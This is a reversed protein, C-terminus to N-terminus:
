KEYIIAREQKSSLAISGGKKVSKPKTANDIYVNLADSLSIIKISCDMLRKVSLYTVNNKDAGINFEHEGPEYSYDTDGSMTCRVINGDPPITGKPKKASIKVKAM